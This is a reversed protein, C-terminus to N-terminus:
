LEFRCGQNSSLREDRSVHFRKSLETEDLLTGPQLRLSLIDERLGEYVSAAGFGRGIKPPRDKAAVRSTKKALTLKSETSKAAPM